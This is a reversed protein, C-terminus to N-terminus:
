ALDGFIPVACLGASNIEAELAALDDDLAFSWPVLDGPGMAAHEDCVNVERFGSPTALTLTVDALASAELHRVDCDFGARVPGRDAIQAEHRTSIKM